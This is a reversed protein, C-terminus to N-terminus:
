KLIMLYYCWVRLSCLSSMWIESFFTVCKEQSCEIQRELSNKNMGFLLLFPLLLYLPALAPPGLASPPLPLFCVCFFSKLLTLWDLFIGKAQRDLDSQPRLFLKIMAGPWNVWLDPVQRLLRPVSASLFALSHRSGAEPRCTGIATIEHCMIENLARLVAKLFTCTERMSCGSLFAFATSIPSGLDLGRVGCNGRSQAVILFAKRCIDPM